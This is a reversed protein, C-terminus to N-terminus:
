LVLKRFAPGELSGGGYAAKAINRDHVSKYARDEGWAENLSDFLHNRTGLPLHLEPPPVRDLVPEDDAGELQPVHIM